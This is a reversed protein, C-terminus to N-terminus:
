VNLNLKGAWGWNDDYWDCTREVGEIPMVLPRYGLGAEAAAISAHTHMVDGVRPPATRVKIGPYRAFLYALVQNNTTREGCAVNYCCAEANPPQLVALAVAHSVNDVHCLDRSQDGTGDSRMPEGRKIATLWSALATAYPSGGLSNPGFVNFFRLCTSGLGYLRAYLRLYDEVVLKQLAYPSRPQTPHTELTPLHAADGYVSSSSAFVFRGVNGRCADMLRLTRTVNVDHSELPHDVSYGVRPVAALHVVADYGRSRIEDVVLPHSFDLALCGHDAPLFDLHGNSLDDVADVQWGLGVLHRYVNSGIFGAAGTLLVRMTM